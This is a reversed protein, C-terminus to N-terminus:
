FWRELRWGAWTKITLFLLGCDHSVDKRMSFSSFAFLIEALLFARGVMGCKSSSCTTSSFFIVILHSSSINQFYKFVFIFTLLFDNRLLLQLTGSATDKGRPTKTKAQLFGRHKSCIEMFNSKHQSQKLLLLYTPPPPFDYHFCDM